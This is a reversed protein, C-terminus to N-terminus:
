IDEAFTSWADESFSFKGTQSSAGETARVTGGTVLLYLIVGVSWIDAKGCYNAGQAIEPAIFIMETASCGGTTM